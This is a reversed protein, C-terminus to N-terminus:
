MVKRTIAEVKGRVLDLGDKMEKLAALLGPADDSCRCISLDFNAKPPLAPSICRSAALMGYSSNTKVRAAPKQPLPRQWWPPSRSQGLFLRRRAVAADRSSRGHRRLAHGPSCCAASPATVQRLCRQPKPLSCGLQCIPLALMPYSGPDIQCVPRPFHLILM